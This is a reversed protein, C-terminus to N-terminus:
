DHRLQALATDLDQTTSTFLHVKPLKVAPHAVNGDPWSFLFAANSDREESLGVAMSLNLDEVAHLNIITVQLSQDLLTGIWGQPNYGGLISGASTKALVVQVLFTM